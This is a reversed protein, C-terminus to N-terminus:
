RDWTARSGTWCKWVEAVGEHCLHVPSEEGKSLSQDSMRLPPSINDLFALFAVATCSLLFSWHLLPSVIPYNLILLIVQLLCIYHIQILIHSLDLWQYDIHAPLHHYHQNCLIYYHHNCLHRRRRRHHHCCHHHHHHHHCRCIITMWM